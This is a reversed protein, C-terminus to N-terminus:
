SNIFGGYDDLKERLKEELARIGEAKTLNNKECFERFNGYFKM